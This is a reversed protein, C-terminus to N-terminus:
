GARLLEPALLASAITRANFLMHALICPWLAGGRVRVYGLVVGMVILPLMDQPQGHILGFPVASALIAPWRLHWYRYVTQLIVGRFLLEEVLPAVLVAGAALQLVGWRGWASAALADLVPHMPPPLDPHLWKWLVVGMGWLVTVLPLLALFGGCGLAVGRALSRHIPSAAPARARRLLVLMFASAALQGLMNGCQQRHWASTGPQAIEAAPLGHTCVDALAMQLALYALVAAALGFVTPGDAPFAVGALPDRWRRRLVLAAAFVALCVTGAALLGLDVAQLISSVDALM